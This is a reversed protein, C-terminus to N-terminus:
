APLRMWVTEGTIWCLLLAAVGAILPMPYLEEVKPERPATVRSKELTDITRLIRALADPDKARFYEGGTTSAIKRMLPEDIEDKLFVYERVVGGTIRDQVYVPVPVVGDSAVGVTYVKISLRAALTAAVAPDLSGANNKGDTVLIVVRSKARSGKLRNVATGLAHGIATGEGNEGIEARELARIAIERDFTIPVRTAARGGFTVIGIRDDVRQALFKAFLEKAATLRNKPEFDEAAMSGSTDIAVVLDIGSRESPAYTVRQPRALAITLLSLGALELLVPILATWVRLSRRQNLLTLSSFTFAGVAHRRDRVLMVLRMAIVVFLLLWWPSAFRM